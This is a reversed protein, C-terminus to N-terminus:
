LRELAAVLTGTDLATPEGTLAAWLEPGCAAAARDADDLVVAHRELRSAAIRRCTRRLPAPLAAPASQATAAFARLEVALREVEGPWGPSSARRRRPEFPSPTPAPARRRALEALAVALTGALAFLAVRMVSSRYQPAAVTVVLSGAVVVAAFKLYPALRM